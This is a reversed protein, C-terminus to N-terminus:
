ESDLIQLIHRVVFPDEPRGRLPPRAALLIQAVAMHMRQVGSVDVPSGPAEQLALLLTEADEVLCRGELCITNDAIRVSM